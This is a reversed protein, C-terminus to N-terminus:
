KYTSNNILKIVKCESLLKNSDILNNIKNIDDNSGTRIGCDYLEILPDKDIILSYLVRLTPVTQLKSYDEYIIKVFAVNKGIGRNDLLYGDHLLTPLQLKEGLKVDIPDPYSIIETKDDSLIVPVFNYYDAKTKYVILHPGNDDVIANGAQNIKEKQNLGKKSQCGYFLFIVLLPIITKM